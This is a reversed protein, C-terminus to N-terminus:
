ACMRRIPSDICSVPASRMTTIPIRLALRFFSPVSSAPRRSPRRQTGASPTAIPRSASTLNSHKRYIVPFSCSLPPTPVEPNEKNSFRTSASTRWFLTSGEPHVPDAIPRIVPNSKRSNALKPPLCNKIMPVEALNLCM